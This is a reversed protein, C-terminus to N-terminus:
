KPTIQLMTMTLAWADNYDMYKKEHGKGWSDTYIIQKKEKNYGNIIRMHMSVGGIPQGEKTNKFVFTCWVMPIGKDISEHIEKLFSDYKRTDDCRADRFIDYEYDSILKSMNLIQVHGRRAVYDKFKIRERKSHRAVSNYDTTFKKFDEASDFLVQGIPKKIDIDLKGETRYLINLVKRLDTGKVSDSEGLQAVIQQDIESGYYKMIREITSAVCYGKKGQNVMPIDMFVDGNSEFNVNLQLMKKNKTTKLSDRLSKATGPPYILLQIYEGLKGRHNRRIVYDGSDGSYKNSLIRFDELKRIDRDSTKCGSIRACFDNLTKDLKEFEKEGIYRDDGRNFLSITIQCLKGKEFELIIEPVNRNCFSINRRIENRNYRLVTNKKDDARLPVPFIKRCQHHSLTWLNDKNDQLIKGLDAGFTCFVTLLLLCISKNKM